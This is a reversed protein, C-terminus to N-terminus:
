GAPSPTEVEEPQHAKRWEYVELRFDAVGKELSLHAGRLAIRANRLTERAATEDTVKGTSDFGAPSSLLGAAEDHYDYAQVVANKFASLAAELDSVDEGEAKQEAIWEESRAIINDARELRNAQHELADQLRKLMTEPSANGGQGGPGGPGGPAAMAVGSVALGALVVVTGAVVALKKFSFTKNV